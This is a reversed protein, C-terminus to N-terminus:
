NIVKDRVQLVPVTVVFCSDLVEPSPKRSCFLKVQNRMSQSFSIGHYGLHRFGVSHRWREGELQHGVIEPFMWKKFM